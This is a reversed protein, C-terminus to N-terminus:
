SELFYLQPLGEEHTVIAYMDRSGSGSRVYPKIWALFSEIEGDYNKINSRTSITWEDCIDCFYLESVAKHVGFYYSGGLFLCDHRGDDPFPFNNPKQKTQGIMFKLSEIVDEPTNKKLRAGFILETYIGM